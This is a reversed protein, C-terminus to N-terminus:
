RLPGRFIYKSKAEPGGLRTDMWHAIPRRNRKSALEALDVYGFTKTDFNIAFIDSEPEPIDYEYQNYYDIKHEGVVFWMEGPAVAACGQDM